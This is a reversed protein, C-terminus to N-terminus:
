RVNEGAWDAIVTGCEPCKDKSARLDYGCTPCLGLRRRNWGRVLRLLSPIVPLVFLVVPFWYPIVWSEVPLVRLWPVLDGPDPGRMARLM